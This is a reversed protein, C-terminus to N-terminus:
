RSLAFDVQLGIMPSDFAYAFFVALAILFLPIVVDEAM